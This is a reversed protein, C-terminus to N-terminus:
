ESKRAFESGLYALGLGVNGCKSSKPSLDEKQITGLDRGDPSFFSEWFQTFPLSSFRNWDLFFVGFTFIPGRIHFKKFVFFGLKKIKLSNPNTKTVEDLNL